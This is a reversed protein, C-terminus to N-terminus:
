SRKKNIKSTFGTKKNTEVQEKKEETVNENENLIEGEKTILM